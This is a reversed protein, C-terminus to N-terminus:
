DGPRGEESSLADRATRIVLDLGAPDRGQHIPIMERTYLVQGEAGYIRFGFKSEYDQLEAVCELPAFADSLIAIVGSKAHVPPAETPQADM